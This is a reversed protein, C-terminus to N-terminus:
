QYRYTAIWKSLEGIEQDQIHPMAPAPVAGWAGTSGRQLKKALTSSIQDDSYKNAITSLSPGVGYESPKHCSTCQDASTPTSRIAQSSQSAVVRSGLLSNIDRAMYDYERGCRRLRDPTLKAPQVLEDFERPSKGYGWCVLNALRQQPLGHTDSYNHEGQFIQALVGKQRTAFFSVSRKLVVEGGSALLIYAAIKDAADEERGLVPLEYEHILHHGVEHLLIFATEAYVGQMLEGFAINSGYTRQLNVQSEVLLDYCLVIERRSPIYFANPQGCSRVLIPVESDTKVYKNILTVLNAMVPTQRMQNAYM